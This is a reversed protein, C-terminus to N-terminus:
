THKEGLRPPYNFGVWKELVESINGIFQLKAYKEQRCRHIDTEIDMYTDTDTDTKM